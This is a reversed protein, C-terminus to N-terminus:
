SAVCSGDGQAITLSGGDVARGEFAERMADELEGYAIGPNDPDEGHEKFRLYALHLKHLRNRGENEHGPRFEEPIRNWPLVEREEPAKYSRQHIVAQILAIEERWDEVWRPLEPSGANWFHEAPWGIFAIRVNVRRLVDMMADIKDMLVSEYLALASVEDSSLTLARGPRYDHFALSRRLASVERPLAQAATFVDPGVAPNLEKALLTDAEAVHQLIVEQQSLAAFKALKRAMSVCFRLPSNNGVQDLDSLKM